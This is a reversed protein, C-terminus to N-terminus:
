GSRVPSQMASTNVRCIWFIHHHALTQGCWLAGVGGPVSDFTAEYPVKHKPVLFFNKELRDPTGGRASRVPNHMTRTDVHCISFIHHNDTMQGCWLENGAQSM